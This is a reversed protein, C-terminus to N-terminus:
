LNRIRDAVEDLEVSALTLHTDAEGLLRLTAVPPVPRAQFVVDIEHQLDLIVNKLSQVNALFHARHFQNDLISM